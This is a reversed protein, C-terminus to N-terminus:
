KEGDYCGSLEDIQDVLSDIYELHKRCEEKLRDNEQILAENEAVYYFIMDCQLEHSAKTIILKLSDLFSKLDEKNYM